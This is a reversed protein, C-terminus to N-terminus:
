KSQQSEAILGPAELEGPLARRRRDLAPNLADRLPRPSQGLQPHHELVAAGGASVQRAILELPVADGDTLDDEKPGNPLTCFPQPAV